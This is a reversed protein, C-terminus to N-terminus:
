PREEGARAVQWSHGRPALQEYGFAEAAARSAFPGIHIRYLRAAGDYAEVVRMEPFERELGSRFRLANTRDQFAGLQLVVREPAPATPPGVAAGGGSREQAQALLAEPADPFRERLTTRTSRAPESRGLAAEGQAKWLLATPLLDAQRRSTVADLARLAREPDGAQLAAWGVLLAALDTKSAPAVLSELDRTEGLATAALGLWLCAEQDDRWPELRTTMSRYNGRAYDLRALELDARRRTDPDTAAKAADLLLRRAEKHQPVLGALALLGRARDEGGLGPLAATLRDAASEYQGQRRLELVEQFVEAAAGGAPPLCALVAALAGLRLSRM